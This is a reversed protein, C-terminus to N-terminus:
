ALRALIYCIDETMYAYVYSWPNFNLPTQSDAVGLNNPHVGLFPPQSDTSKLTFYETECREVGLIFDKIELKEVGSSWM